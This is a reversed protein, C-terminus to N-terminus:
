SWSELLGPTKEAAQLFTGVLYQCALLPGQVAPKPIVAGNMTRGRSKNVPGKYM